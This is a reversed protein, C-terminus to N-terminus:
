EDNGTIDNPPEWEIQTPGKANWTAFWGKEFKEIEATLNSVLEEASALAEQNKQHIIWADDFVHSEFLQNYGCTRCVSCNRTYDDVILCSSCQKRTNM